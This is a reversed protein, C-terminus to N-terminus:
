RRRPIRQRALPNFKEIAFRTGALESIIATMILNGVKAKFIDWGLPIKSKESFEQIISKIEEETLTIQSKKMIGARNVIIPLTPGQCELAQVAPDSLMAQIKPLNINAQLSTMPPKIRNQSINRPLVVNKIPKIQNRIFRKRLPPLKKQFKETPIDLTISSSSEYGNFLPNDKESNWDQGHLKKYSKALEKVFEKLFEKRINTKNKM